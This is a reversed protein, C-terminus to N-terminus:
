TTLGCRMSSQLRWSICFLFIYSGNCQTGQDCPVETGVFGIDSGTTVTRRAHSPSTKRDYESASREPGPGVAQDVNAEVDCYPWLHDHHDDGLVIVAMQM